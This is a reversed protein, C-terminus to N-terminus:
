SEEGLRREVEAPVDLVLSSSGPMRLVEAIRELAARAEGYSVRLEDQGEPLPCDVIELLRDEAQAGRMQQHLARQVKLNDPGHERVLEALEERGDDGLQRLAFHRAARLADQPDDGPELDVELGVRDTEYAGTKRVAQFSIKSIRM